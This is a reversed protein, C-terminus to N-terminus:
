IAAYADKYCSSLIDAIKLLLIFRGDGMCMNASPPPRVNVQPAWQYYFWIIFVHAFCVSIYMNLMYDRIYFIYAKSMTNIHKMM